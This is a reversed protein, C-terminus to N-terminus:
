RLHEKVLISHSNWDFTISIIRQSVSLTVLAESNTSKIM